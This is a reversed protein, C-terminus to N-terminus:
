VVTVHDDDAVVTAVTSLVPTTVPTATPVAVMVATDFEFGCTLPAAVTV